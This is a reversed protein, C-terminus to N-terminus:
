LDSAWVQWFGGARRPMDELSARFALRFAEIPSFTYLRDFCSASAGGAFIPLGATIV